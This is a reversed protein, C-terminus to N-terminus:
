SDSLSLNYVNTERLKFGLKQYLLNAAERSAHSTLDVSEAGLKRALQLVHEMLDCGLGFGRYQSDVVVDEIRAKLGTPILYFVISAMGCISPNETDQVIFLHTSESDIISKLNKVTIKHKKRSLQNLLNQVAPLLDDNFSKVEKIEFKRSTTQSM